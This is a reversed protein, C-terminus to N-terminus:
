AVICASTDTLRVSDGLANPYNANYMRLMPSKIYVKMTASLEDTTCDDGTSSTTSIVKPDHDGVDMVPLSYVSWSRQLPITGADSPILVGELHDVPYELTSLPGNWRAWYLQGDEDDSWVVSHDAVRGREIDDSLSCPEFVIGPLAHRM